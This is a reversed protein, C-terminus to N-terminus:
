FNYGVSISLNSMKTKKAIENLDLGYTIGANFNNYAVKAGIQWGFNFRNWAKAYGCEQAEEKDFLDYSEEDSGSGYETDLNLTEDVNAAINGKLYIGTFPLVQVKDNVSFQYVLNIPVQIDYYTYEQKYSVDVYGYDYDYGSFEQKDEGSAYSFKLGTEVFLPLSQSISFAKLYGISFGNLDIDEAGDADFSVTGLNYSATVGQWGNTDASSTSMSKSAGSNAFQAFASTSVIMLMAVLSTLKKM